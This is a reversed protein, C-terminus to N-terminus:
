AQPPVFGGMGVWHGFTFKLNQNNSWPLVWMYPLTLMWGSAQWPAMSDQWCRPSLKMLYQVCLSGQAPELHERAM